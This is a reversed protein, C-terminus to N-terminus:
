RSGAFADITQIGTGSGANIKSPLDIVAKILKGVGVATDKTNQEIAKEKTVRLNELRLAESTGKQVATTVTTEMVGKPKEPTVKAAEEIVQKPTKGKPIAAARGTPIAAIGTAEALKSKMFSDIEKEKELLTAYIVDSLNKFNAEAIKIGEEPALFEKWLKKNTPNFALAAAQSFKGGMKGLLQILYDEFIDMAHKVNYIAASGWRQFSLWMYKAEITTIQMTDAWESGDERFTENIRKLSEIVVDAGKQFGLMDAIVVNLNNTFLQWQANVSNLQNEAIQKTTGGAKRLEKEYRAIADGAGLLPFIAAQMRKQFGLTELAVARESVSMPAFARTMQRAINAMSNLNGSADFVEINLRKYADANQVAAPIMLRLMRGFMTGAEAGKIGQDAYAALVAVGEELDIGFARMAPGAQNTLSESFQQVNANALTNAKVLVDSVRVLSKQDKAVNKSSLGLAKQSDALLTTATALDFQGAQAFRAVDGLLIQSQQLGKGASTLFFYGEALQDASFLASQSLTQATKMMESRMQKSVGTTIALSKTMAADLRLFSRISLGIGAAIAAGLLMGAHTAMAGIKKNWRRMSMQASRLGKEMANKATLYVTLQKVKAM